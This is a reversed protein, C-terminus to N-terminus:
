TWKSRMHKIEDASYFFKVFESKYMIEKYWYPCIFSDKFDSYENKYSKDSGVNGQVLDIVGEKGVFESIASKKQDDSAEAKLLLIDFNNKQFRFSPSKKDHKVDFIDIGLSPNFEDHFWNIGNHHAYRLIFDKVM